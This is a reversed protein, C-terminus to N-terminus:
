HIVLGISLGILFMLIEIVREKILMRHFVKNLEKAEKNIRELEAVTKAAEGFAKDSSDSNQVVYQKIKVM